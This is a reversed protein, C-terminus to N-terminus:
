DANMHGADHRAKEKGDRVYGAPIDRKQDSEDLYREEEL